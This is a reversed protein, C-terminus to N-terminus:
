LKKFLRIRKWAKLRMEGWYKDSRQFILREKVVIIGLFPQGNLLESNISIKKRQWWRMNISTM